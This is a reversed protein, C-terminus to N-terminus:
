PAKGNGPPVLWRELPSLLSLIVYALLTALIALTIRGLGAAAGVAATLWIGAAATPGRIKEQESQKLIAGAGLFGIGTLLGQMVRSLDAPSMGAKESALLFFASGLSVLMHTRLGAPKHHQEREYGLLGGLLAAFVLRVVVQAVQTPDTLDSFDTVVGEWFDTWWAEMPQGRRIQKLASPVLLMEQAM